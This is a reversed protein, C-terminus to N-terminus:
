KMQNDSKLRETVNEREAMQNVLRLFMDKAQENIDALYINLKGSTLLNYYHVKRYQKLYHAHQQGWVGISVKEEAPLALWPILYDGQIEYTGDIEEFFSKVM